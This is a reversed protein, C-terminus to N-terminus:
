ENDDFSVELKTIDGKFISVKAALEKNKASDIKIKQFETVDEGTPRKSELSKNEVYYKCWSEVKDATIFDDSKYLKRKEEIPLSTIRDKESQWNASMKLVSYSHTQLFKYTIPIIPLRQINRLVPM